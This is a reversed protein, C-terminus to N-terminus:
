NDESPESPKGLRCFLDAYIRLLEAQRAAVEKFAPEEIGTQIFEFTDATSRILAIIAPHANTFYLAVDRDEIHRFQAIVAGAATIEHEGSKAWPTASHLAGTPNTRRALYEIVDAEDLNEGFM